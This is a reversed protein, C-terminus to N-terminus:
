KKSSSDTAPLDLQVQNAAINEDLPDVHIQVPATVEQLQAVAGSEAPPNWIPEVEVM